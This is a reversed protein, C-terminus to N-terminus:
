KHATITLSQLIVEKSISAMLYNTTALSAEM